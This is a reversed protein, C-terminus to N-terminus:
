VAAAPLLMVDQNVPKMSWLSEKKLHFHDRLCDSVADKFLLLIREHNLVKVRQHVFM